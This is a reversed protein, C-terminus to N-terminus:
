SRVRAGMLGARVHTRSYSTPMRAQELMAATIVMPKHADAAILAGAVSNAVDDHGGPAHDISDRGSRATRRELGVLQASLRPLDLLEARGANLLPLLAGYLDSKPKESLEYQVGHARLRERPWEGAYRDGTVRRIGYTKLLECFEKAVADPSFPPRRERCADLVVHKTQRDLHAIALTMSDASGGSPDVFAVYRVGSLPELEHRGPVVAADVVERTLLAEVDTRFTALYEAAARSPDVELEQDIASQPVTPNMTRTPAQWVLVPDGDKGHHRRWASYLAGKRAYPSSACLLMSNPVTLMAPKLANIVEVDPDAAAAADTPWFALEDLLAAVITYGRVTKFSATGVEIAIRNTLDFGEATEREVMRALMPIQTLLARIYRLITRSQKRDTALIM